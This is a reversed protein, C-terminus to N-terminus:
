KVNGTCYATPPMSRRSFVSALGGVVVPVVALSVRFRRCDCSAAVAFESDCDRALRTDFVVADSEEEVVSSM